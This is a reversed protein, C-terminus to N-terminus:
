QRSENTVNRADLPYPDAFGDCPRGTKMIFGRQETGQLNEHSTSHLIRPLTQTPLLGHRLELRHRTLTGPSFPGTIYLGATTLSLAVMPLDYRFIYLM